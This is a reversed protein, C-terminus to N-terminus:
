LGPSRGLAYDSCRLATKRHSQAGEKTDKM